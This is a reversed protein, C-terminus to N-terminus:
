RIRDMSRVVAIDRDVGRRAMRLLIYAILPMLGVLYRGADTGASPEGATAADPPTSGFLGVLLPVLTLLSLIQVVGIVRRQRPRDKYLFVAGLAVVAAAVGLAYAVGPMWTAVAAVGPSWASGLAVFAVLFMAGSLLFVTQSRQLMPARPLRATM